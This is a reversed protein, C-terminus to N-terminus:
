SSAGPPLPVESAGDSPRVAWYRPRRGFRAEFGAQVADAVERAAEPRVLALACGGFGAGTLRSGYVGPHRDALECLADLEPVSVEFDERLSRMGARLLAGAQAFAGAELAACFAEVRANETVVHRARRLLRPELVRELGPLEEPAVDRLARAGPPLAGARRAAALAAACEERRDGYGGAALRREVGSHFVLIGLREGPFPVARLEESRCDIRLAHDRRGLASAFPDMIGCRVGAFRSEARHAVRARELVGLGLGLAADIATALGVCLAASSSLGAERPVCSALLLDLGRVRLGEEQLASVVGQAYDIWGGRRALRRTDFELTEDLELSHVRVRAAEGPGALVLLDRDIACPLVLGENYDTHEGILNVRGPARAAVRPARGFHREFAPLTELLTHSV